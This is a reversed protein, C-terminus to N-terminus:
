REPDDFVPYGDRDFLLYDVVQGITDLEAREAGRDRREDLIMDELAEARLSPWILTAERPFLDDVREDEHLEM